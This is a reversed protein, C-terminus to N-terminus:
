TVLIQGRPRAATPGTNSVFATPITLGQPRIAEAAYYDLFSRAYAVEGLSERL